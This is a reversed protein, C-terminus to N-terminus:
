GAQGNPLAHVSHAPSHAIPRRIVSVAAGLSLWDNNVLYSNSDVHAGARLELGPLLRLMAKRVEPMNVARWSWSWCRTSRHSPRSTSATSAKLMRVRSWQALAHDPLKDLQERTSVLMREGVGM